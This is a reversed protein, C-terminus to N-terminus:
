LLRAALRLMPRYDGGDRRRGGVILGSLCGAAGRRGGPARAPPEARERAAHQASCRPRPQSPARAFGGRRRREGVQLGVEVVRTLTVALLDLAELIEGALEHQRGLGQPAADRGGLLRGAPCPLPDLRDRRLEVGKGIHGVARERRHRRGDALGEAEPGREGALGGVRVVDGELIDEAAGARAHGVGLQWVDLEDAPMRRHEVDAAPPPLEEPQERGLADRGLANVAVGAHDRAAAGQPELRSQALGVGVQLSERVPGDPRDERGLQDLVQRVPLQAPQELERPALECGPAQEDGLGDVRM